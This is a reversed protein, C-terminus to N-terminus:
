HTLDSAVLLLPSAMISGSIHPHDLDRDGCGHIGFRGLEVEVTLVIQSESGIQIWGRIMDYVQSMKTQFDLGNAHHELEEAAWIRDESDGLESMFNYPECWNICLQKLKPLAAILENPDNPWPVNIGDVKFRARHVSAAYSPPIAVNIPPPTGPPGYAYTAMRDLLTSYVMMNLEHTSGLIEYFEDRLTHCTLPLGSELTPLCEDETFVDPFGSGEWFKEWIGFRTKALTLFGASITLSPWVDEAAFKLIKLRIEKPITMLTPAAMKAAQCGNTIEIFTGSHVSKCLTAIRQLLSSIRSEFTESAAAM